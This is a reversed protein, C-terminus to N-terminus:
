PAQLKARTAREWSTIAAARQLVAPGDAASVVVVGDSDGVIIDGAACVVGGVAVPYGIEGTGEKSPGAACAGRAFVPFRGAALAASDRIAGDVVAGLVGRGAAALAMLEGLLAHALSGQGNVVLVDGPQALAIAEHIRANDGSRVWVTLATGALRAGPWVPRIQGAMPGLRHLADGIVATPLAAFEAVLEPAARRWSTAVRMGAGGPAAPM